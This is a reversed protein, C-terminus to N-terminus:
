SLPLVVSLSSIKCRDAAFEEEEKGKNRKAEFLARKAKETEEINRLRISFTVFYANVEM